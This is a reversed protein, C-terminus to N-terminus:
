WGFEFLSTSLMLAMGLRHFLECNGANHNELVNGQCHFGGLRCRTWFLVAAKRGRHVVGAHEKPFSKFKQMFMAEEGKKSNKEQKAGGKKGRFM